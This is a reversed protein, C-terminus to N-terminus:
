SGTSAASTPEPGITMPLPYWGVIRSEDATMCWGFNVIAQWQRNYGAELMGFKRQHYAIGEAMSMRKDGYRESWGEDEEEWDDAFYMCRWLDKFADQPM